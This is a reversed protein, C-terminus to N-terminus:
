ITREFVSLTPYSPRDGQLCILETLASQTLDAATDFAFRFPSVPDDIIVLTVFRPQSVPYIGVFSTVVSDSLYGGDPSAKQATGTKGAIAYGPVFCRSGTANAELVVQELMGLVVRCTQPSFLRRRERAHPPITQVDFWGLEVSPVPIHGFYLSYAEPLLDRRPEVKANSVTWSNLEGFGTMEQKPQPENLSKSTGNTPRFWSRFQFPTPLVWTSLQHQKPHTVPHSSEIQPLIGWVIHPTVSIGGNAIAAILQLLKMPTMALGQGFAATAPEIAHNVFEYREKVVSLPYDSVLDHVYKSTSSSNQIPSGVSGIGLRVLNRHYIEPDLAQMIRVMGVNSSRQLIQTPTLHDPNYEWVLGGGVNRIWNEGVLMNGTDLIRETPHLIGNEIAIALNIPKFTSGPEFLDTMPWCRFREMPFWSYLNPDYSPTTALCRIAGTHAEMIIAAIRKAGFRQQSEQILQSVRDQLASDLTLQVVSEEHFIVPRPFRAGLFNGRGDTWSPLEHNPVQLSHDLSAEIGAQGCGETDVYGLVNALSGRQPYIRRPHRVLELGDLGLRRLQTSTRTSIQHSLCIGTAGERFRDQLYNVSVELIPALIRAMRVSSLPFMSPHVYLDYAPLDIALINGYCDVITRRPEGVDVRAIQQIQSLFKLEVYKEVQLGALRTFFLLGMSSLWVAKILTEGTEASVSRFLGDPGLFSLDFRFRM